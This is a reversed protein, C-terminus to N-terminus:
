KTLTSSRSSFVAWLGGFSLLLAAILHGMTTQVPTSANISM